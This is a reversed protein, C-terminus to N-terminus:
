APFVWIEGAVGELQSINIEGADQIYGQAKEQYSAGTWFGGWDSAQVVEPPQKRPFAVRLDGRFPQIGWGIELPSGLWWELFAWKRQKYGRDWLKGVSCGCIMWNKLFCRTNATAVSVLRIFCILQTQTFFQVCNWLPPNKKKVESVM